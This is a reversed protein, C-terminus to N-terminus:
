LYHRLFGLAKAKPLQRKLGPKVMFCNGEFLIVESKENDFQETIISVCGSIVYFLNYKQEHYHWSCEYGKKLELLCTEHTSDQRISTRKGWCKSEVKM